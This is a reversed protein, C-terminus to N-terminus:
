KGMGDIQLTALVEARAEGFVGGMFYRMRRM